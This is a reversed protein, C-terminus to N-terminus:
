GPLIADYSVDLRSPGRLVPSDRYPPPDDVNRSDIGHRWVFGPSAEALQNVDDLLAVFSATDPHDDGYARRRIALAERLLPEADALNGRLNEVQGLHGLASALLPHDNGFRQRRIAIAEQLVPVAEALRGQQRLSLALNNLGVAVIPAAEGDVRKWTDIADRLLPEGDAPRGRECLTLGLDNMSAAISSPTDARRRKIALADRNLTEAEDYRALERYADALAAMAQATDVHDMGLTARRLQLSRELLSAARDYLGLGGFVSGMTGLLRAQVVPQGALEVDIREAGRDLLERATVSGGDGGDPNAVEFISTLFASVQQATDREHATRDREEALRRAQVSFTVAAGAM